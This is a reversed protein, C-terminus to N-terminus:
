EGKDSYRGALWGAIAAAAILKNAQLCIREAVTNIMPDDPEGEKAETWDMKGIGAENLVEALLKYDLGHEEIWETIGMPGMAGENFEGLVERQKDNAKM